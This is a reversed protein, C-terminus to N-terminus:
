WDGGDMGPILNSTIVNEPHSDGGGTQAPGKMLNLMDNALYLNADPYIKVVEKLTAKLAHCNRDFRKILSTMKIEQDETIDEM